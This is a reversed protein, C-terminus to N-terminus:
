PKAAPRKPIPMRVVLDFADRAVDQHDKWEGGVVWGAVDNGGDYVGNDGVSALLYGDGRREYIFPKDTFPDVPVAALYRPVLDDLREPYPPTDAGRDAQWAALAAATKTLALQAENRTAAKLWGSVAPALLGLLQDAVRDSRHGRSCVQLLV